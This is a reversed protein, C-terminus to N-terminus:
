GAAEHLGSRAKQARTKILRIANLRAEEKAKMAAVMDSQIRDLLAMTNPIRTTIGRMYILFCRKSVGPGVGNSGWASCAIIPDSM